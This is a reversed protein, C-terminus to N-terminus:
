LMNKYTNQVDIILSLNINSKFTNENQVLFDDM